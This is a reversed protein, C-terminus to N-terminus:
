THAPVGILREKKWFLAEVTRPQARLLKQPVKKCETLCGSAVITGSVLDLKM